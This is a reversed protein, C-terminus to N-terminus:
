LRDIHFANTGIGMVPIKEGTSPIKKKILPLSVANAWPPLAAGAGVLLGTGILTRRTFLANFPKPM